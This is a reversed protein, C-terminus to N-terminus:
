FFFLLKMIKKHEEEKQLFKCPRWDTKIIPNPLTVIHILTLQSHVSMFHAGVWWFHFLSKQEDKWNGSTCKFDMKFTHLKESCAVPVTQSQEKLKGLTPHANFSADVSDHIWSESIM